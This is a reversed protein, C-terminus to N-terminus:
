GADVETVGIAVETILGEMESANGVHPASSFNITPHVRRARSVIEPIDEACHKGSVLFYPLVVIESVGASALNAIATEISPEALELFGCGVEAYHSRLRPTVSQVLREVEHNSATRRSGHAVVLLARAGPRPGTESLDEAM